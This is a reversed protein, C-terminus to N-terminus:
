FFRYLIAEIKEDTIGISKFLQVYVLAFLAVYINVCDNMEFIGGHTKNNRLNVFAQVTDDNILPLNYKKIIPDIFNKNDNYLTLIKQRLNFDLHQFCNSLTTESNIDIDSHSQQFAKITKKIERKLEAILADKERKQNPYATELATCLGQINTISVRKVDRNNLPLLDLLPQTVNESIKKLLDPLCEFIQYIQISGYNNIEAYNEYGDFIKCVATQYYKGDKGMQSLYTDFSVNRQKTLISILKQIISYYRTISDFDKAEEFSLRISTDLEGLSHAGRRGTCRRGCSQYVSVTLTVKEKDDLM